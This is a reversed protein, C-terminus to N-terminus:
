RSRRKRSLAVLGVSAGLLLPLSAPLPVPAPAIEYQGQDLTDIAMGGDDLLFIFWDGPNSAIRSEFTFVCKGIACLVGSGSDPVTVFAAANSVGGFQTTAGRLENAAANFLPATSGADLVSFLGGLRFLSAETLLGGMSPAQFLGLSEGGNPDTLAFTAALSPGAGLGAFVACSFLITRFM